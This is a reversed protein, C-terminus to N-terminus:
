QVDYVTCVQGNTGSGSRQPYGPSVVGHLGLTSLLRFDLFFFDNSRWVDMDCAVFFLSRADRWYKHSFHIPRTESAMLRRGSCCPEARVGVLGELGVVSESVSALLTILMEAPPSDDIWTTSFFCCPGAFFTLPVLSPCLRLMWLFRHFTFALCLSFLFLAPPPPHSVPCSQPELVPGFRRLVRHRRFVSM